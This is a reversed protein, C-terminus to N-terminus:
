AAPRGRAKRTRRTLQKIEVRGCPHVTVSVFDVFHSPELKQWGPAYQSALARLRIKLAPVEAREFKFEIRDVIKRYHNVVDIWPADFATRLTLALQNSAHQGACPILLKTISAKVSDRLETDIIWRTSPQVKSGDGYKRIQVSSKSLYSHQYMDLDSFDPHWRVDITNPRIAVVEGDDSLCAAAPLATIWLNAVLGVNPLQSGLPLAALLHLHLRKHHSPQREWVALVNEAGTEACFASIFKRAISGSSLACAHDALEGTSPINCTLLCALSEKSRAALIAVADDVLRAHKRTSNLEVFKLACSGISICNKSVGKLQADSEEFGNLVAAALVTGCKSLRMLERRSPLRGHARHFELCTALVASCALRTSSGACVASTGAASAGPKLTGRNELNKLKKSAGYAPASLDKNRMLNM